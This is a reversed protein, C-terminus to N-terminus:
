PTPPRPSSCRPWPGARSPGPWGAAAVEGPPIPARGTWSWRRTTSPSSRAPARPRTPRPEPPPTTPTTPSRTPWLVAQEEDGHWGRGYLPNTWTPTASRMSASCSRAGATTWSAASATSCPRGDAVEGLPELPGDAFFGDPGPLLRCALDFRDAAALAARLEGDRTAVALTVSLTEGDGPVGLFKLYGLDGGLKPDRLSQPGEPLPVLAHFYMLGSEVVEEPIACGPTRWGPPCPRRRGGAVVVLDAELVGGDQLRVGSPRRGAGPHSM